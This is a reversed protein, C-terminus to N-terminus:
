AHWGGALELSAAGFASGMAAAAVAIAILYLRKTTKM